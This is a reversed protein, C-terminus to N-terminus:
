MRAAASAQDSRQRSGRIASRSKRRPWSHRRPFMRRRSSRETKTHRCAPHRKLQARSATQESTPCRCRSSTRAASHRDSCRNGRSYCRTSWPQRVSESTVGTECAGVSLEGRMLQSLKKQLLCLHDIKPSGDKFNSDHSVMQRERRVRLIKSDTAKEGGGGLRGMM